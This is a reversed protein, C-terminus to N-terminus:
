KGRVIIKSWNLGGDNSILLLNKSLLWGKKSDVFDIQPTFPSDLAKLLTSDIPLPHWIYGGDKTSYFQNSAIRWGSMADGFVPPSSNQGFTSRVSWTRGGDQSAYLTSDHQFQVTVFGNSGFFIPTSVSTTEKRHAASLPLNVQCWTKGNDTSRYLWLFGVGGAIGARQGGDLWLTGDRQVTLQGGFPLSNYQGSTAMYRWTKGGDGTAFVEGSLQANGASIDEFWGHRVDSFAIFAGGDGNKIPITALQSWSQGRDQTRYITATKGPQM